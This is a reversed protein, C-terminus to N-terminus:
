DEGIVEYEKMEPSETAGIVQAVQARLQEGVAASANLDAETEWLTLTVVEGTARDALTYGGKYGSQKRLVARFQEQTQPNADPLGEPKGRFRTLRAHM